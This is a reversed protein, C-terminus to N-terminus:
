VETDLLVGMFQKLKRAIDLVEKPPIQRIVQKTDRDIIKTVVSNTSEDIEYHIGRNLNSLAEGLAEAAKRTAERSLPLTPPTATPASETAPKATPVPITAVGAMDAPVSVARVTGLSLGDAEM